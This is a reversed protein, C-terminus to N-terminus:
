RSCGTALACGPVPLCAASASMADTVAQPCSSSAMVGVPVRCLSQEAAVIFMSYDTAYLVGDAACPFPHPSLGMYQHVGTYIGCGATTYTGRVPYM